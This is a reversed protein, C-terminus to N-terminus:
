GLIHYEKAVTKIYEITEMIVETHTNVNIIVLRLVIKDDVKTLSISRKGETKIRDYVYQQLQDLQEKPFNKPTLRFCLLGLDPKHCLEIDPSNLLNEYVTKIAVLPTRLRQIVKTLGLYRISTILPLASFPRTSPPSKLGPNPEPDGERNWYDGYMAMRCFDEKRRVFLLSNPIPVGFQKHPDWTISNAIEIGSFLQKREPVLSYALGYAGDVHLWIGYKKCIDAMPLIPDVSGTSTTGATAIACFIDNTVQLEDITEQMHQVDIRRNKDVPLTVLRQEGLGMIRLAHKLSFHAERSTVAVLRSPDEFGQIGNKAFDFGQQEAAWHLALYLASQNSYTGCYMFTADSEPSLGFLRCLAKCCLEEAMVAGPSVQWNTVGQNYQLAIRAGFEAGKEPFFNFLSQFEQRDYQMFHPLLREEILHQLKKLSLGEEQFNILPKLDSAVEEPSAGSYILNDNTKEMNM